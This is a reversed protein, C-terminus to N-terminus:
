ASYRPKRYNVSFRRTTTTKGYESWVEPLDRRLATTDIRTSTVATYSVKFPGAELTEMAAADMHAKIRDTLAEIEAALDDQMQRLEQLERVAATIEEQTFM